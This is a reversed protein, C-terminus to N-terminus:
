PVAYGSSRSYYRTLNPLWTYHGAATLCALVFDFVQFCFFPLLYLPRNKLTGCVMMATMFLLGVLLALALHADGSQVRKKTFIMLDMKTFIGDQQSATAAFPGDISARNTQVTPFVSEADQSSRHQVAV